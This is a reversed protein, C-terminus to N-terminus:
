EAAVKTAKAAKPKAAKPKAASRSKATSAKRARPPKKGSPARSEREALLEVARELTADEPTMTRPLTANTKAHNVYNGYRGSRV